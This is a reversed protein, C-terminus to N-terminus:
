REPSLVRWLGMSITDLFCDEGNGLGLLVGNVIDGFDFQMIM